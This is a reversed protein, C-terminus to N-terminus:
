ILGFSLLDLRCIRATKGSVCLQRTLTLVNAFIELKPAREEVLQKINKGIKADILAKEAKSLRVTSLITLAFIAENQM